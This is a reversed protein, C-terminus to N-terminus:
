ISIPMEIIPMVPQLVHAYHRRVKDYLQSDKGHVTIVMAYPIRSKRKLDACCERANYHLEFVPNSLSSIRKNGSRHIVTEWKHFDNRLDAETTYIKSKSFFSSDTKPQTAGESYITDNPRFTIEIGSMTYSGADQPDVETAYCITATITVSGNITNPIPIAARIYQKSDLHGQYIVTATNDDCIVIDEINDPVRGWGVESQLHDMKTSKNILLAKIALPSLSPGFHSRIGAALRLVTPAAFSTGMISMASSPDTPSVVYYPDQDSGGFAVVDPKVLGPSRGPGVSSYPARQWDTHSMRDCAGVAMGNVCDSPVLVRNLAHESYSEGTNGAAITGFINGDSLIDDLTSTWVEVDDDDVPIDPGVSLNFFEYKGTKLIRKIRDLVDFLDSTDGTSDDVVRYHDVNTYPTNIPVGERIPGFLYASTVATGHLLGKEVASSVNHGKKRSTWLKLEEQADAHIGGDFIAVKVEPNVAGSGPLVCDFNYAPSSSGSFPDFERLAPMERVVRLFSFKEIDTICEFSALGPIFLLGKAEVSRDLDVQAGLSAMYELFSEIVYKNSRNAHLALELKIQGESHKFSKIRERPEFYRIDEIKIIDPTIRNFHRSVLESCFNDFDSRKGAVFIEVTATPEVPGQKTWKEPTVISSRSGVSRFNHFNLLNDPFYSKALYTPHLTLIAVAEDNPCAQPPIDAISEALKYARSSLRTVAEELSYPNSKPGGSKPPDITITLKEGNGLLFNHKTGM